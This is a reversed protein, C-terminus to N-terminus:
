AHSVEKFKLDAGVPDEPNKDPHCVMAQAFSLFSPPLSSILELKGEEGKTGETECFLSSKSVVKRHGRKIETEDADVSVGLLTDSFCLLLFPLSNSRTSRLLSFTALLLSFPLSLECFHLDAVM